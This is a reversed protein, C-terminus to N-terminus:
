PNSQQDLYWLDDDSHAAQFDAPLMETLLSEMFFSSLLAFSGPLIVIMPPFRLCIWIFILLLVSLAISRVPRRFLFSMARIFAGPLSIAFRSLIPFTYMMLAELIILKVGALITWVGISASESTFPLLLTPLDIVLVSAGLAAFILGAILSPKWNERLSHFFCRAASDREKRVSKVVSYYVATTAPGFGVITVSFLVWLLSLIFLDLIRCLFQGVPHDLALFRFM